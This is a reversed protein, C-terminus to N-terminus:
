IMKRRKSVSLLGLLGTIFMWLAQPVPVATVELGVFKKEIFALEGVSSTKARLINEITVLISSTSPLFGLFASAEWNATDDDFGTEVFPDAAKIKAVHTVFPNSMDVARLDGKVTVKASQGDLEYDGKETLAISSIAKNVLSDIKVVFTSQTFAQGSGNISLAKFNSPTFFYQIVLYM